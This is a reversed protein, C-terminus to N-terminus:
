AINKSMKRVLVSSEKIQKNGKIGLDNAIKNPKYYFGQLKGIIDLPNEINGERDKLREDSYDGFSTITDSTRINGNVYMNGVVDLSYIPNTNGIGVNGLHYVSTNAVNYTWQAGNTDRVPNRLHYNISM